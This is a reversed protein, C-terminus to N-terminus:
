QSSAQRDTNRAATDAGIRKRLAAILPAVRGGHRMIYSRYESRLTIAMSVGEAVIDIVRYTQGDRRVRWTVNVPEGLPRILQSAVTFLM